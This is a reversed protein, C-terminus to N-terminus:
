SSCYSPFPPVAAIRVLLPHRPIPPFASRRGAVGTLTEIYSRIAAEPEVDGRFKAQCERGFTSFAEVLWPEPM